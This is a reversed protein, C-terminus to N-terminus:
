RLRAVGELWVQFDSESVIRLTGMTKGPPLRFGCMADMALEYHAARDTGFNLAFELDPVAIEKLQLGPCSFVYIYDASRLQIQVAAGEPLRLEGASVIDDGTGLIGDAGPYSFQWARDIGRAEVQVPVTPDRVPLVSEEEKIAEQVVVASLAAIIVVGAVVLVQRVRM